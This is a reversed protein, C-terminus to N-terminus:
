LTDEVVPLSPPVVTNNAALFGIPGALAGVVALGITIWDPVEGVASFGALLATLVIAVLSTVAYAVKRYQAPIVEKVVDLNDFSSM